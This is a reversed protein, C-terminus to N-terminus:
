SLMAHKRKRVASDGITYRVPDRAGLRPRPKHTKRNKFPLDM